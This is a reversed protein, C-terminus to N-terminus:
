VAEQAPNGSETSDHVSYAWSQSTRIQLKLAGALKLAHTFGIGDGLPSCMSSVLVLLLLSKLVCKDSFTHCSAIPSLILDHLVNEPALTAPAAHITM